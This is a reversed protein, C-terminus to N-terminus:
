SWCSLIHCGARFMRLIDPPKGYPCIGYPSHPIRFVPISTGLHVYRTFTCPTSQLNHPRSGSNQLFMSGQDEIKLSLAIKFILFVTIGVYLVANYGLLGYDSPHHPNSICIVKINLRFYEVSFEYAQSRASPVVLASTIFLIGVLNSCRTPIKNM